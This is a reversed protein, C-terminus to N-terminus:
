DCLANDILAYTAAEQIEQRDRDGPRFTFVAATAAATGDDTVGTESMTGFSTGGHSWLGEGNGCRPAWAIGM